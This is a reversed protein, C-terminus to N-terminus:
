CLDPCGWRCPCYDCSIWNICHFNGDDDYASEYDEESGLVGQLDLYHKSEHDDYARNLDEITM